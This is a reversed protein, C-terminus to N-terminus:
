NRLLWVVSSSFKFFFCFLFFISHFQLSVTFPSRPPRNQNRSAMKKLRFNSNCQSDSRQESSNETYCRFIQSTSRRFHVTTSPYSLSLSLFSISTNTNQPFFFFSKQPNPLNIQSTLTQLSLSVSVSFSFSIQIQIQRYM